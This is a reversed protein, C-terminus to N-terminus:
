SECGIGDNDRDLHTGYGPDGRYVPAAGAERAETCNAFPRNVGSSNGSSNGSGSRSSSTGSSTSSSGSTSASNVAAERATVAAEAAEVDVEAAEVARERAEVASQAEQVTSELEEIEGEREAVEVERASVANERETVTAELAAAEESAQQADTMATDRVQTLDEIEGQATLLDERAESLEAELVQYEATTTTDGPSVGIAVGGFFAFLVGIGILIRHLNKHGRKRPPPAPRHPSPDFQADVSM